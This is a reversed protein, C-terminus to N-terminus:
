LLGTGTIETSVVCRRKVTAPLCRWGTRHSSGMLVVAAPEGAAIQVRVAERELDVDGKAYVQVLLQLDVLAARYPNSRLHAQYRLVLIKRRLDPTGSAGLSQEALNLVRVVEKTRGEALAIRAEDLATDPGSLGTFAYGVIAALVMLSFTLFVVFSRRFM